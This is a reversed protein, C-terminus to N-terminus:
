AVRSLMLMSVGTSLLNIGFLLGLVWTASGPWGVFILVAMLFATLGSFLFWIWGALHPRMAFALLVSAVAEAMFLAALLMTLTTAGVFPYILFIVGLVLGLAATAANLVAGPQHRLRWWMILGSVGSFVLLWAVLQSVAITAVVPAIIALAGIVVFIWGMLRLRKLEEDTLARGNIRIEGM